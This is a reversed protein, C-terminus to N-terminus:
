RDWFVKTFYKLSIKKNKDLAWKQIHTVRKWVDHIEVSDKQIM